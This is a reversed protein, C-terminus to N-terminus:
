LGGAKLQETEKAKDLGAKVRCYTSLVENKHELDTIEQWGEWSISYHELRIRYFQGDIAFEGKEIM